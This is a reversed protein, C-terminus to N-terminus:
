FNRSNTQFVYIKRSWQFLEKVEESKEQGEEFDGKEASKEM